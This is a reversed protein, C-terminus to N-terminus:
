RSPLLFDRADAPNIEIRFSTPHQDAVHFIRALLNSVVDPTIQWGLRKLNDQRHWFGTVLYKWKASVRDSRGKRACSLKQFDVVKMKMVQPMVTDRAQKFNSEVYRAHCRHGPM